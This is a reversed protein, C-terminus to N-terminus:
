VRNFFWVQLIPWETLGPLSIRNIVRTQTGAQTGAQRRLRQVSRM